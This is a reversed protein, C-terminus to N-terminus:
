IRFYGFYLFVFNIIIINEVLNIEFKGFLKLVKLIIKIVFLFFVIFMLFVGINNVLLM